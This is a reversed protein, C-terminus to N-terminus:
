EGGQQCRAGGIEQAAVHRHLAADGRQHLRRVQGLGEVHVELDVVAAVREVVHRVEVHDQRDLVALEELHQQGSGGLLVAERLVDLHVPLPEHVGHVAGAETGGDVERQDLALLERDQGLSAPHLWVEPTRKPLCDNWSSPSSPMLRASPRACKRTKRSRLSGPIGIAGRTSRSRRLGAYTRNSRPISPWARPAWNWWTM